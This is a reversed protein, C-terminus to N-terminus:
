GVKAALLLLLLPLLATAAGIAAWLGLCLAWHQWQRLV